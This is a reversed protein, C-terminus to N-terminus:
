PTKQLSPWLPHVIFIFKKKAWITKFVKFLFKLLVNKLILWLFGFHKREVCM